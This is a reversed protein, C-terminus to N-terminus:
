YGRTMAGKIVTLNQFLYMERLVTTFVLESDMSMAYLKLVNEKPQEIEGDQGDANGTQNPFKTQDLFNHDLMKILSLQKSILKWGM